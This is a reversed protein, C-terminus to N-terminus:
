IHRVDSAQGKDCYRCWNRYPQHTFERVRRESLSVLVPKSSVKVEVRANNEEVEENVGAKGVGMANISGLIAIDSQTPGVRAAYPPNM